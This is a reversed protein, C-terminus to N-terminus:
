EEIFGNSLIKVEPRAIPSFLDGRTQQVTQSCDELAVSCDTGMNGVRRSSTMAGTGHKKRRASHKLTWEDCQKILKGLHLFRDATISQQGM